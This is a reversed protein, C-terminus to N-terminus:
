VAVADDDFGIHSRPQDFFDSSFVIHLADVIQQHAEFVDGRDHVPEFPFCGDVIKNEAGFFAVPIDGAVVGPVLIGGTRGDPQGFMRRLQFFLVFGQDIIEVLNIGGVPVAVIVQRLDPQQSGPAHFLNGVDHVM